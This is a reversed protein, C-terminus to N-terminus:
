WDGDGSEQISLRSQVIVIINETTRIKILEMETNLFNKSAYVSFVIWGIQIFQLIHFIHYMFKTIKDAM